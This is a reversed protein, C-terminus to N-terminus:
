AMVVNKNGQKNSLIKSISIQGILHLCEVVGQKTIVLEGSIALDLNLGNESLKDLHEALVIKLIRLEDDTLPQQVDPSILTITINSNTTTNRGCNTSMIYKM